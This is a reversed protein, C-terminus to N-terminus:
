KCIKVLLIDNGVSHTTM